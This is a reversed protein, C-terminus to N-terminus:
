RDHGTAFPALEPSEIAQWAVLQSGLRPLNVLSRNEAPWRRRLWKNAQWALIWVPVTIGFFILCFVAESPWGPWRTAQFMALFVAGIMILNACVRIIGGYLSQKYSNM